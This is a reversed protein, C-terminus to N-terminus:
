QMLHCLCSSKLMRLLAAMYILWNVQFIEKLFSVVPRLGLSLYSNLRREKFQSRAKVSMEVRSRSHREVQAEVWILPKM